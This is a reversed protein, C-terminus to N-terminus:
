PTRGRFDKTLIQNVCSMLVAKYALVRQRLNDASPKQSYERKGNTSIVKMEDLAVSWGNDKIVKQLHFRCPEGNSVYYGQPLQSNELRVILLFVDFDRWDLELELAIDTGLWGIVTSRDERKIVPESFGYNILEAFQSIAWNEIESQESVNSIWVLYAM